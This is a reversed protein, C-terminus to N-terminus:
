GFVRSDHAPKVRADMFTRRVPLGVSAQSRPPADHIAPDYALSAVGDKPRSHGAIVASLTAVHKGDGIDWRSPSSM